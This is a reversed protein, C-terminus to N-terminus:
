STHARAFACVCVCAAWVEERPDWWGPGEAQGLVQVAPFEPVTWSQAATAVVLYVCARVCVSVCICVPFCASMTDVRVPQCDHVCWCLSLHVWM